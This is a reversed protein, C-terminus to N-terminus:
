AQRSFIAIVSILVVLYTGVIVAVIWLPWSFTLVLMTAFIMLIGVVGSLLVMM